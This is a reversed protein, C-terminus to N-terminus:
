SPPGKLPDNDYQEIIARLEALLEDLSGTAVSRYGAIMTVATEFLLRMPADAKELVELAAHTAARVLAGHEASLSHKYKQTMTDTPSM